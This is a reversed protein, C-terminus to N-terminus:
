KSSGKPQPRPFPAAHVSVQPMPPPFQQQYGSSKPVQKGKGGRAGGQPSLTTGGSSAVGLAQLKYLLNQNDTWLEHHAKVAEALSKGWAKPSTRDRALGLAHGRIAETTIIYDTISAETCTDTLDWARSALLEYCAIAEVGHCYLAM